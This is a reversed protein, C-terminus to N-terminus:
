GIVASAPLILTFTSGKGPESKVSLKAGMADALRKSISLGLGSGKMQDREPNKLQFFEDFIRALHEPGIGAGTDSVAIEFRGDNQRETRVHVQGQETFKIANGILNTIIRSLKVRDCKLRVLSDPAHREFCLKKAEALPVLRQCEEELWPGLEFESEKLEIHGSDLRTLDLVDSVLHVLSMSSNQLEVALEPIEAIGQPDAASRQILEALLSIANAPTRIDHSVAALFKSKRVSAEEADQRRHDLEQELKKMESVDVFAVIASVIKGSRERIPAASILVFMAHGDSFRFELEEVGTEEGRLARALPWNSEDLPQGDRLMASINRWGNMTDSSQPSVRLMSEGAPNFRGETGDANTILIGFPVTQLITELRRRENDVQEFLEAAGASASAQAALSEVLAIDRDDWRHRTTSYIELTGVIIQNIRLPTALIAAFAAGQKPRPFKLDPRLSIDELYGTRGHEMVLSSFSEGYPISSVVAGGEGFGHDCILKMEDGQRLMIAAAQTPPVLRQVAQCIQDFVQDKTTQSALARSLDLLLELTQQHSALEENAVRLEEAQRELEEAQSHLEENQRTIEARSSQLETNRSILEDTRNELALRIVTLRDVVLGVVILDAMVALGELQHQFRRAPDGQPLFYTFKFINIIAFTILLSWLLRRSRTLGAVVIPVGYGVPLVYHGFIELRLWIMALALAICLVVSAVFM